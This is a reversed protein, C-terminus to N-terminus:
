SSLMAYISSIYADINANDYRDNTWYLDMEAMYCDKCTGLDRVYGSSIGCKTCTLNNAGPDNVLGLDLGAIYCDKCLTWFAGLDKVYGNNSSIGCKICYDYDKYKQYLPLLNAPIIKTDFIYQSNLRTHYEFNKKDNRFEYWDMEAKYDMIISMMNKDYEKYNTFKMRM